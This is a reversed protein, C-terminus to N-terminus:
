HWNYNIYIQFAEVVEEDTIESVGHLGGWVRYVRFKDEQDDADYSQTCQYTVKDIEVDWILTKTAQMLEVSEDDKLKELLTKKDM